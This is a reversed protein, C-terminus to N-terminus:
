KTRRGSARRVYSTAIWGLLTVAAAGALVQTVKDPRDRNGAYVTTFTRAVAPTTIARQLARAQRHPTPVPPAPRKLLQLGIFLGAIGGFLFLGGLTGYAAYPGYRVELWHFLAAAGVGLAVAISLAGAVLMVAALVYGTAIKAVWRKLEALYSGLLASPSAQLPPPFPRRM